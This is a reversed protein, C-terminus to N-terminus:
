TRSICLRTLSLTPPGRGSRTADSGVADAMDLGAAATAFQAPSGASAAPAPVTAVCLAHVSMSPHGVAVEPRPGPDPELGAAADHTVVMMQGVAAPMAVAHDAGLGHMALLGLLTAAGILGHLWQGLARTVNAPQVQDLTGSGALATLVDAM